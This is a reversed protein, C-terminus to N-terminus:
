AQQEEQYGRNSPLSVHESQAKSFQQDKAGDNKDDPETPALEFRCAPRELAGCAIVGPVGPRRGFPRLFDIVACYVEDLIRFCASIGWPTAVVTVISPPM